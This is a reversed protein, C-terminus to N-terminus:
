LSLAISRLLVGAPRGPGIGRIGLVKAFFLLLGDLFKLLLVALNARMFCGMLRGAAGKGSARGEFGNAARVAARIRDAAFHLDVRAGNGVIGLCRDALKLLYLPRCEGGRVRGTLIALDRGLGTRLDLLRPLFFALLLGLFELFCTQGL